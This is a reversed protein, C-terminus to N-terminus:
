CIAHANSFREIDPEAYDRSTGHPADSGGGVGGGCHGKGGWRGLVGLGAISVVLM